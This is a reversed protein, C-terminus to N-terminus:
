VLSTCISMRIQDFRFEAEGDPDASRTGGVIRAAIDESFHRKLVRLPSGEQWTSSTVVRMALCERLRSSSPEVEVMGEDPCHSHGFKPRMRDNRHRNIAVRPMM